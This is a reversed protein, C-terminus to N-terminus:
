RYIREEMVDSWFVKGTKYSFDVACASRTSNIVSTLIKKDLSLSRIDKKQSFLLSPQGKTAKCKTHDSPEKPV